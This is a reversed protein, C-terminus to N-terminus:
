LRHRGNNSGVRKDDQLLDSRYCSAELTRMLSLAHVRWTRSSASVRSKAAAPPSTKKATPNGAGQSEPGAAETPAAPMAPTDNCTGLQSLCAVKMKRPEVIPDATVGAVRESIIFHGILRRPSAKLRTPMM